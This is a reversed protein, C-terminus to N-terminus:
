IEAGVYTGEGKLKRGTQNLYRRYIEWHRGVMKDATFRARASRQGTGALQERWGPDRYLALVAAVIARVDKAPILLGTEGDTIIEPVGGVETAVVPTGVNMAEILVQPLCESLSPHVFLDMASMCASVDRRYGAFVVRDELGFERVWGEILARDGDGVLLLRVGPIEQAIEKLANLLYYHGKNKFLRGVCGLVFDSEMNFEQRVRNRDDPAADLAGLEYGHPVVEINRDSLSERVVMHRRVADAPVIVCDARRAMWRDIEVNLQSGLLLPEDLHHRTVVTLPVLALRAALIGVV